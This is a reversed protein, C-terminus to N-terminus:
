VDPRSKLDQMYEDYKTDHLLSMCIAMLEEPPHKLKKGYLFANETIKQIAPVIITGDYHVTPKVYAQLAVPVFVPEPNVLCIMMDHLYGPALNILFYFLHPKNKVMRQVWSKIEPIAYMPRKESEYGQFLFVLSNRSKQKKKEVDNVINLYTQVHGKEVHIRSVEIQTVKLTRETESKNELKFPVGHKKFLELTFNLSKL